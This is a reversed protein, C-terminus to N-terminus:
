LNISKICCEFSVSTWVIEADFGCGTGKTCDDKLEQKTCLRGGHKDCICKAEFFNKETYCENGDFKSEAWIGCGKDQWRVIAEDSCCRVEHLADYDYEGIEQADCRGDRGCDAWYKM